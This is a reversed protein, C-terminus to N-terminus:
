VKSIPFDIYTKRMFSIDPLSALLTEAEASPTKPLNLTTKLCDLPNTLGSGVWDFHADPVIEQTTFIASTSVITTTTTSPSISTIPPESAKIPELPGCSLNAAFRPVATLSWPTLLINRSDINLATLLRRNALSETWQYCIAPSAELPFLRSWVVDDQRLLGEAVLSSEEEEYPFVSVWDQFESETRSDDNDLKLPCQLLNESSNSNQASVFVCDSSSFDAFNSIEDDDDEQNTPSLPLAAEELKTLDVFIKSHESTSLDHNDPFGAKFDTFDDFEDEDVEIPKGTQGEERNDLPENNPKTTGLKDEKQSEEICDVNNYQETERFLSSMADTPVLNPSDSEFNLRDNKSVFDVQEASVDNLQSNIQVYKCTDVKSLTCNENEAMSENVSSEVSSFEPLSEDCNRVEESLQKNGFHINLNSDINYQQVNCLQLHSPSLSRLDDEGISEEANNQIKLSPISEFNGFSDDPLQDAHGNPLLPCPDTPPNVSLEGSNDSSNQKLPREDYIHPTPSMGESDPCLGSDTASDQSTSDQERSKSVLQKEKDKEEFSICENYDIEEATNYLGFDDEEEEEEDDFANLPPPTSSVLPPINGAM